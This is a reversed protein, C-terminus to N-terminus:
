EYRISEVPDLRSAHWAPYLAALFSILVAVVPIVWVEGWKVSCALKDIYYVSGGGPMSVPFIKLYWCIALGSVFGIVAGITGTAVGQIIFINLIDNNTAGMSKLIGIDKTKRMVVMILTSAINFAAVLVIFGLIVFMAIKEMALASFLNKNMSMWDRAWLDKYKRHIETAVVGANELNDTKIAIGTIVDGKGFLEQATKVSVYGFTNDYDYMGASFVGVIKMRSMKPMLGAPTKQFVPSILIIDDGMDAGLTSMLEKGLLIGQEGGPLTKMISDIDGKIMNEKLKNVKSISEPTVGWLLLGEVKEVYKLMVQSMFYPAASKVHPLAEIAKVKERYGSMGTRADYPMAVVHANTGIIKDRIDEHFGNMVSTVVVLATVGLAIGAFSIFSIISLFGQKKANLYRLGIFYTFNKAM